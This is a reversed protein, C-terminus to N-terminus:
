AAELQLIEVRGAERAMRQTQDIYDDELADREDKTMNICLDHETHHGMHGPRAGCAPWTFQDGAKRGKGKGHKAQNSHCCQSFGEIRCVICPLSAVWRRYPESRLLFLKPVVVAVDSSMSLVGRCDTIPRLPAAPPPVYIRRAFGSRKM